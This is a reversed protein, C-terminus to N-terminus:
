SVALETAHRREWRSPRCHRRVGRRHPDAGGGCFCNESPPWTRVPMGLPLGWARSWSPHDCWRWALARLTPCNDVDLTRPVHYGNALVTSTGCGTCSGGEPSRPMHEALVARLADEERADAVEAARDLLFIWLRSM